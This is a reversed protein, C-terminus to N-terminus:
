HAPPITALADPGGAAFFAIFGAVFLALAAFFMWAILKRQAQAEPPFGAGSLFRSWRSVPDKPWDAPAPHKQLFVLMLVWAALMLLFGLQLGFFTVGLLM